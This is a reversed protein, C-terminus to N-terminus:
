WIRYELMNQKSWEAIPYDHYQLYVLAVDCHPSWFAELAPYYKNISGDKNRYYIMTRVRKHHLSQKKVM